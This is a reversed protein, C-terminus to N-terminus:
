NCCLGFCCFLLFCFSSHSSLRVKPPPKSKGKGADAENTEKEMPQPVKGTMQTVPLLMPAVAERYAVFQSMSGLVGGGGAGANKDNKGGKVAAAAPAKADKKADKGGQKGALDTGAASDVIVTPLVPELDNRVRINAAFGQYAKATDFLVDLGIYFRQLEAQLLMAAECNVRYQWVSVIGDQSWKQTMKQGEATKQESLKCFFDRLILTRLTLEAVCDPDFRLEDPIDDNFRQCFASLYQQRQDDRLLFTQLTDLLCRNRQLAECRVDRLAGFFDEGNVTSFVEGQTWLKNLIAAHEPLLLQSDSHSASRPPFHYEPASTSEQTETPVEEDSPPGNAVAAAESEGAGATESSAAMQEEEALVVAQDLIDQTTKSLCQEIIVPLVEPSETLAEVANEFDQRQWFEESWREPPIYRDRLSEAKQQCWESIQAANMGSLVEREDGPSATVVAESTVIDEYAHLYMALQTIAQVERRSFTADVGVMVPPHAPDEVQCVHRVSSTQAPYLMVEEQTYMNTRRHTIDQILREVLSQEREQEQQHDLLNTAPLPYDTCLLVDLGARDISYQWHVATDHAAYPSLYDSPQPRPQDYRIGSFAQMLLLCQERSNPFDVVVFGNNVPPIHQIARMILQVYHQDTVPEGRQLLSWIDKNLESDGSIGLKCILKCIM